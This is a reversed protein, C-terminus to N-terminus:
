GLCPQSVLLKDTVLYGALWTPPFFPGTRTKRKPWLAEFDHDGLM